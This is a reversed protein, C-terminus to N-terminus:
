NIRGFYELIDTTSMHFLNSQFTSYRVIKIQAKNVDPFLYHSKYLYTMILERIRSIVLLLLM